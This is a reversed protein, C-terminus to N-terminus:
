LVHPFSINQFDEQEILRAESERLSLPFRIKNPPPLPGAWIRFDLFYPVPHIRNEVSTTRLQRRFFCITGLWVQHRKWKRLVDCYRWYVVNQMMCFTSGFRILGTTWQYKHSVKNAFLVEFTSFLPNGSVKSCNEMHIVKKRVPGFLM